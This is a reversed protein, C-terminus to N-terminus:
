MEVGSLNMVPRLEVTGFRIDPFRGAIEVARQESDCELLFYGALQEKSEAYPGDTVMPVGGRERIIRSTGPAALAASDLLEGSNTIEALLADFQDRMGSTEAGTVPEPPNLFIPHAWITPNGHILLLYRM